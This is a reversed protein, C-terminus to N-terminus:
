CYQDGFANVKNDCQWDIDEYVKKWDQQTFNKDLAQFNIDIEEDGALWLIVRDSRSRGDETFLLWWMPIIVIVVLFLRKHFAFNKL